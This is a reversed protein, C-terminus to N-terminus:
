KLACMEGKATVKGNVVIFYYYPGNAVYNGVIDKGDWPVEQPGVGSVNQQWALKGSVNYIMIKASSQEELDFIIKTGDEPMFPNPRNYPHDYVPTLLLTVPINFPSNVADPATITITATHKGAQLAAM